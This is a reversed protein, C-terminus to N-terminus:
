KRHIHFITTHIFPYSPPKSFYIGPYPIYIWLADRVVQVNTKAGYGPSQPDDSLVGSAELVACVSWTFVISLIVQIVVCNNVLYITLM